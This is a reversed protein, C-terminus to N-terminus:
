LVLLVHSALQRMLELCLCLILPRQPHGDAGLPRGLLGVLSAGLRTDHDLLADDLGHLLRSPLCARSTM